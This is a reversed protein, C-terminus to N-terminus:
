RICVGTHGRMVLDPSVAKYIRYKGEPFGTFTAFLGTDQFSVPEQFRLIPNAHREHHM